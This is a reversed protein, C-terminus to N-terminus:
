WRPWRRGNRRVPRVRPAGALFSRLLFQVAEPWCTVGGEGESTTDMVSEFHSKAAGKFFFPLAIYAQEESMFLQEAEDVFRRLFDLVM